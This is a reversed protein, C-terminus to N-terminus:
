ARSAASTRVRRALWVFAVFQLAAILALLGVYRTLDSAVQDIRTDQAVTSVGSSPAGIQAVVTPSSVPAPTQAVVTPSSAPAPTQAVVTPKTVAPPPRPPRASPPALP